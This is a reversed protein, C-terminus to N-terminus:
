QVIKLKADSVVITGDINQDKRPIHEAVLFSGRKIVKVKGYKELIEIADFNASIFGCNIIGNRECHQLVMDELSELVEKFENTM